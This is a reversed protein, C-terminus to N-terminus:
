RADRGGDFRRGNGVVSRCRDRDLRHPDSADHEQLRAVGGNLGLVIAWALLDGATLWAAGDVRWREVDDDAEVTYGCSTIVIVAEAIPDSDEFM